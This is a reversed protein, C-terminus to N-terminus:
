DWAFEALVVETVLAHAILIAAFFHHVEKCRRQLVRAHASDGQNGVLSELRYAVAQHIGEFVKTADRQNCRKVIGLRDHFLVAFM